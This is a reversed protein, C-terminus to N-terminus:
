TSMWGLAWETGYSFDYQNWIAFPSALAQEPTAYPESKQMTDRGLRDVRFCHVRYQLLVYGVVFLIWKVFFPFSLRWSVVRRGEECGCVVVVKLKSARRTLWRTKALGSIGQYRRFVKVLCRDRLPVRYVVWWRPCVLRVGMIIVSPVRVRMFFVVSM